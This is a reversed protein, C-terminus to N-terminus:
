HDHGHGATGDLGHPHGHEREVDSADRIGVVEVAFNLTVGALPHNQTIFVVEGEVHDVWVIVPQGDEGQAMFHMGAQIAVNPPFHEKPVGLPDRGDHPGYGQEPAVSVEFTDGISKGTLAAELGPVINGAGHLYPLPDDATNQDIVEGEGNTLTYVLLGVKGDAIAVM